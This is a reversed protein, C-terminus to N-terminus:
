QLRWDIRHEDTVDVPQGVQQKHEGADHIMLAVNWFCLPLRRKAASTLLQFNSTLLVSERSIEANPPGWRRSRGQVSTGAVDTEQRSLRNGFGFLPLNVDVRSSRPIFDRSQRAAFSQGCFSETVGSHMKYCHSMDQEDDGDSLHVCFSIDRNMNTNDNDNVAAETAAQLEDVSVTVDGEGAFHPTLTVAVGDDNWTSPPTPVRLM